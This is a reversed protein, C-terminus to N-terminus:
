PSWYKSLNRRTLTQIGKPETNPSAIQSTEQYDTLALNVAEMTQALEIQRELDEASSVLINTKAKITIM